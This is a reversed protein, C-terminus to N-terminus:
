KQKIEKLSALYTHTAFHTAFSNSFLRQLSTTAISNSSPAFSYSQSTVVCGSVLLRRKLDAVEEAV